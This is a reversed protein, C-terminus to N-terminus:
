LDRNLPKYFEAEDSLFEDGQIFKIKETDGFRIREWDEPIREKGIIVSNIDDAVHIVYDRLDVIRNPVSPFNEGKCFNYPPYFDSDTESHSICANCIILDINNFTHQLSFGPQLDGEAFYQRVHLGCKISDPGYIIEKVRRIDKLIQDIKEVGSKGILELVRKSPTPKGDFLAIGQSVNPVYSWIKRKADFRGSFNDIM